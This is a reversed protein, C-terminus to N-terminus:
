GEYKWTLIICKDNMSQSVLKYGDSFRIDVLANLEDELALLDKSTNLGLDIELVDVLM